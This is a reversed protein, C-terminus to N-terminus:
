RFAQALPPAQFNICPPTPFSVTNLYEPALFLHHIGYKSAISKSVFGFLIIWLLLLLHNRKINVLLLQLPFFFLLKRIM